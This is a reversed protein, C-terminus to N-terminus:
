IDTFDRRHGVELIYVSSLSASSWHMGYKLNLRSTLAVELNARKVETRGYSGQHTTM